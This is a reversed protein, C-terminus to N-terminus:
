KLHRIGWTGNRVDTYYRMFEWYRGHGPPVPNLDFGDKKLSRLYWKNTSLTGMVEKLNMINRHYAKVCKAFGKNRYAPVTYTDGVTMYTDWRNKNHGTEFMEVKYGRWSVPAGDITMVYYNWIPYWWLRRPQGDRGNLRNPHVRTSPREEGYHDEYAKGLEDWTMGQIIVEGELLHLLDYPIAENTM